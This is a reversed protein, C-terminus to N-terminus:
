PQGLASRTAQIVRDIQADTMMSFLPLSVVRGFVETAVPFDVERLGYTDRWHSLMHLPTFHVSTGIGQRALEAVFEDRSLPAGPDLRLIYLHWAHDGSFGGM